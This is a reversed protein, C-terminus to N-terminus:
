GCGAVRDARRAAHVPRVVRPFALACRLSAPQTGLSPLKWLHDKLPLGPQTDPM